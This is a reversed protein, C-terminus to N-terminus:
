APRIAITQAVWSGSTTTFAGPDESVAALERQASMARADGVGAQTSKDSIGNTYNTPYTPTGSNGALAATALWLTKTSGWSPTLSPPNPATSSGTAATGVEPTGQWGSIRYCTWATRNNGHSVTVSTEGGAATKYFITLGIGNVTPGSLLSWGTPTSPQAGNNECAFVIILLNGAVVGAPLNVSSSSVRSGGVNGISTAAVTPFSVGPVHVPAVALSGVGAFAVARNRIRRTAVALSGVGAFAAAGRRTVRRSVALTGVGALGVSRLKQKAPAVALSGVGALAASRARARRPIAALSGVGAFAVTRLLSKQYAAVLSGVADFTVSYGAMGVMIPGLEVPVNITITGLDVPVGIQIAGLDVPVTIETTM